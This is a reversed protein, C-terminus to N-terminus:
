FTQPKNKGRSPKFGNAEFAIKVCCWSITALCGIALALSPHEDTYLALCFLTTAVFYLATAAVFTTKTM